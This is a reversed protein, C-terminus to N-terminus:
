CCTFGGTVDLAGKCIEVVAAIFAELGMNSSVPKRPRKRRPRPRASWGYLFLLAVADELTMQGMRYRGYASSQEGPSGSGRERLADIVKTQTADDFAKGPFEADLQAFEERWFELDPATYKPKPAAAEVRAYPTDDRKEVYTDLYHMADNWAADGVQRQWAGESRAWRFGHRKLWTRNEAPPKSGTFLQLRNLEGNEVM